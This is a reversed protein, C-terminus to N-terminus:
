EGTLLELYDDQEECWQWLRQKVEEPIALNEDVQILGCQIIFVVDNLASEPITLVAKAM